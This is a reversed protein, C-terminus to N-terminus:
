ESETLRSCWEHDALYIREVLALTKLADVSSGSSVPRDHLVSFAFAQIEKKWSNDESYATVQETPSGKDRTPDSRIVALTESGYSKSGTLIGRLALTGRQFTLDLSFVHQWQTASSHLMAIVGESTRLIAYVNDEVDYGWYSNSVFSKVDVFHGGFMRLLDVMHIGQDLLIGGGAISRKTRWDTQNFTVLQSKGYIGRLNLLQGMSGSKAVQLAVEVSDHYRHNFGYMLKQNPRQAEEELVQRLENISRAPPKECFVHLGKKLGALTVEAAMDNSLCVFLLDLDERLLELYSTHFAVDTDTLDGLSLDQDCVAVLEM